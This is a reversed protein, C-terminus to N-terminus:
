KTAFEHIGNNNWNSKELRVHNVCKHDLGNKIKTFNNHNASCFFNSGYSYLIRIYIYPIQHSKM